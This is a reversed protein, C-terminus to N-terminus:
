ASNTKKVVAEYKQSRAPKHKLTTELDEGIISSYRESNEMKNTHKIKGESSYNEANV